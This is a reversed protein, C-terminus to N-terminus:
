LFEFISESPKEVNFSRGSQDFYKDLSDLLLDSFEVFKTAGPNKGHLRVEEIHATSLFKFFTIFSNTLELVKKKNKESVNPEYIAGQLTKLFLLTALVSRVEDQINSKQGFRDL